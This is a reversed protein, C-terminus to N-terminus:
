GSHASFSVRPRSPDFPDDGIHAEVGFASTLRASTLVERPPGRHLLQGGALLGISDCFRAALNLDHLVVAIGVGAATLKQLAALVSLQWFPDQASVPEDLLLYSGTEGMGVQALVRALHARQREGGSLDDVGLSARSTLGVAEIARAAMARCAPTEYPEHPSRGLLVLEDVRLEFSVTTNQLLVARQRALARLDVSAIDQGDLEIVGADPVISRGLVGLLSSKGAGNPGVIGLMEGRAIDLSVGQLVPHGGLTLSVNKCAIV